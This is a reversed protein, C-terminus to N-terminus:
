RTPGDRTKEPSIERLLPVLGATLIKKPLFGDAGSEVAAKRYVDDAHVTIIVVRAGPRDAKIERTAQLGDIGPMSLDMLVVDPKLERALRVAELGDDAEAVVTMEPESQVLRKLLVRVAPNDDVILLNMSSSGIAWPRGFAVAISIGRGAM